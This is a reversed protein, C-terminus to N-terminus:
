LRIAVRMMSARGLTGWSDVWSDLVVAEAVEHRERCLRDAAHEDDAAVKGAGLGL